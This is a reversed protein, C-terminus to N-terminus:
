IKINKILKYIYQISVGYLPAIQSVPLQSRLYLLDKEFQSLQKFRDIKELQEDDLDFSTLGKIVEDRDKLADILEQNNYNM